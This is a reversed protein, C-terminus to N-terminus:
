VQSRKKNMESLFMNNFLDIFIWKKVVVAVEKEANIMKDYISEKQMSKVELSHYKHLLECLVEVPLNNGKQYTRNLLFIKNHHHVISEFYKDLFFKEVVFAIMRKILSVHADTYFHSAKLPEYFRVDAEFNKPYKLIIKRFIRFQIVSFLSASKPAGSRMHKYFTDTAKQIKKKNQEIYTEVPNMPPTHIGLTSVVHYGWTLLVQKTYQIVTKEGRGGTTVVIMAYKSFFIPRHCMFALHDIFNKFLTPVSLVYVPLAVIIGDAKKMKELLIDRDDHLLCKSEDKFICTHCGLCSGLRIDALYLYEITVDNRQSLLRTIM